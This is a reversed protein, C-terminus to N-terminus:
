NEQPQVQGTVPDRRPCTRNGMFSSSSDIIFREALARRGLIIPYNFKSRNALTVETAFTDGSVCIDLEVVYRTPNQGEHEKIVATRLVPKEILFGKEFGERAGFPFWFRVWTQADKEFTEIQEAHISSTLAGSDLKARVRVGWPQLYAGELWGLLRPSAATAGSTLCLWTLGLIVCIASKVSSRGM